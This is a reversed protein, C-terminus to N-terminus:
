ELADCLELTRETLTEADTALLKTTPEKGVDGRDVVAVPPEPRDAFGQRAPWGMTEGEREAVSEPEAPREDEAVDWGLTELAEEVDGAFRYNVAFRLTPFCERAELLFRAVHSSAGFRVGRTPAVGSFTRTIRGEVAATEAVSEAYPTAGVVNTGVEPLLPSVDAEVLADVVSRVAEATPERAADNRIEVGHNVAGPGQGVDYPYRIARALFDTAGEVASELDAGRALRAAIAAALTCGSGHTADTDVRPHEFTRVDDATVLVDRVTEGPVHGGKILAAEAGLECIAEGAARASAEDEIEVGTLVTAEDANPTVITAEALLDAYAAEAEPELLRDGSTAVMVPDVVLPFGFTPARDAVLRVLEPTALMGTKAGAVAFDDIVASLQAEVEELPLVHSSEVGRTHQATVATIASTGFVGHAAMTALDAQIGAGGGSDSGAITLGVPRADPAPRRM